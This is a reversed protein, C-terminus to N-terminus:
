GTVESSIRSAHFIHVLFATALIPAILNIFPVTFSATILLGSGLIRGRINKRHRTAERAGLHRIAVLEYYGWGILYSNLGYFIVIPVFPLWITMIYLPLALLNFALIYLGIRLGLWTATWAGLRAGAPRDSYYRAEVADVVDDLFLGSFIASVPIFTLYAAWVAALAAAWLALGSLIGGDGLYYHSIASIIGYVSLGLTVITLLVIRLLVRFFAPDTIQAITRALAEAFM